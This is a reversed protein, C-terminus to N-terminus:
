NNKKKIMKNGEKSYINYNKNNAKFKEIMM